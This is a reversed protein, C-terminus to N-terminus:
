ITTLVYWDDWRSFEPHWRAYHNGELLSRIAERKSAEGAHEVTILRFSYRSFDFASLIEFESGETDVSLYDIMDPANHRQLLDMLSITEVDVIEHNRRSGNREHVDDPTIKDIRSLEPHNGVAQFPIRGGSTSHVCLDSVMCRRNQQLAPHWAPNPEALIGNWGYERELLLTNSLEIGDCAGFEVFFGERKAGTMMVVWLDQFIQARSRESEMNCLSFFQAAQRVSLSLDERTLLLSLLKTFLAEEHKPLDAKRHIAARIGAMAHWTFWDEEFITRM